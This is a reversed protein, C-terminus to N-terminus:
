HWLCVLKELRPLVRPRLTAYLHGSARAAVRKILEQELLAVGKFM